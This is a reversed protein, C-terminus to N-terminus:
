NNKIKDMYNKWLDYNTKSVHSLNQTKNFTEMRNFIEILLKKAQNRREIKLSEPYDSVKIREYIFM